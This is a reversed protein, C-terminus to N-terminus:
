EILSLDGKQKPPKPSLPAASITLGHGTSPTSAAPSPHSAGHVTGVSSSLPSPSAAPPPAESDPSARGEGSAESTDGSDSTDGDSGGNNNDSGGTESNDSDSGDGSGDGSGDDNGDGSDTGDDPNDSTDGESTSSDPNYDSSDSNYDSSDPNYDPNYDNNYDETYNYGDTEGSSYDDDDLKDENGDTLAAPRPRPRGYTREYELEERERRKQKARVLLGGVCAAAIYLAFLAGTLISLSVPDGLPSIVLSGVLIGVLVHRWYKFLTKTQIIELYQLVIVVLPFQFTFGVILTMMTVFSYYDSGVWAFTLGFMQNFHYVVGIAIPLLFFFSFCCGGVFLVLSAACFPLLCKKEDTTLAPAVFNGGFYLIFVSSLGLGCVLGINLIVTFVDMFKLTIMSGSAAIM